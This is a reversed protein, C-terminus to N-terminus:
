VDEKRDVLHGKKYVTEIKKINGIDNLPNDSLILFDAFYGDKISGYASDIGLLEASNKTASDIADRPSMGAEVMHIIEDGAMNYGVQPCGADTGMAVKVGAELYRKLSDDVYKYEERVASKDYNKYYAAMTPVVSMGKRRMEALLPPIGPDNTNFFQGHEISDIGVEVALKIGEIGVCHASIKYGRRHCEETVAMMEGRSVQVPCGVARHNVGMSKRAFGGTLMVKVFDAGSRIQLRAGKVFGDAGDCECNSWYCHGGTICLASGALSFEPQNENPKLEFEYEMYGGCDRFFTVGSSAMINLKDYAASIMQEKPRKLMGLRDWTFPDSFLHLHCDILGPIIYKGSMDVTDGGASQAFVEGDINLDKKIFRGNDYVNANIIKM